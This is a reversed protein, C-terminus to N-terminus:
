KSEDVSIKRRRRRYLRAISAIASIMALGLVIIMLRCFCLSLWGVRGRRTFRNLPSRFLVDGRPGTGPGPLLRLRVM